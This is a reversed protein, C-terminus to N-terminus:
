ESIIEYNSRLPIEIWRGVSGLLSGNKYYRDITGNPQICERITQKELKYYRKNYYTIRTGDELQETDFQYGHEYKYEM